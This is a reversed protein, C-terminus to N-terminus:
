GVGADSGGVKAAILEYRVDEDRYDGTQIPERLIVTTTHARRLESNSLVEDVDVAITDASDGGHDISSPHPAM